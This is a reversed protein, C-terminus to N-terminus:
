STSRPLDGTLRKAERLVEIREDRAVRAEFLNRARHLHVWVTKLKQGTLQAIEQGTLGELEFLIFVRRYKEAMEDIITYARALAQRRELEDGPTAAAAPESRTALFWRLWRRQQLRRRHRLVTRSTIEFIWTTVQADGRFEPLRRDVTLFVDHVVDEIDDALVPGGLRWVWRAVTAAHARYLAGLALKPDSHPM